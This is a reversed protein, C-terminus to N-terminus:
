DSYYKKKILTAFDYDLQEDIDISETESVEIMKPHFGIRRNYKKIIESKYAYFGSTEVFIGKLDQTRPTKELNYNLPEHDMWIFEHLEKVAFSSDFEGNIIEQLGKDITDIKLFPATSHLLIYVEADHKYAFDKLIDNMSTSDSNYKEDRLEFNIGKPIKEELFSSSSFVYTENIYKSKLAKKCINSLLTEKGFPLLNKDKLRKSAMKIPIIAIVKM